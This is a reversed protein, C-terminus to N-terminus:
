GGPARLAPPLDEITVVTGQCQGVAEEMVTQLENVNGPWAYGLLRARVDESLGM